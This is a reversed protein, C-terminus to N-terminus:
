VFRTKPLRLLAQEEEDLLEASEKPTEAPLWELAAAIKTRPAELMAWQEKVLQNQVTFGSWTRAM